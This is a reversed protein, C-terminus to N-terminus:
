TLLPKKIGGEKGGDDRKEKWGLNTEKWTQFLRIYVLVLWKRIKMANQAFM